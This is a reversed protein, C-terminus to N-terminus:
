AQTEVFLSKLAEIINYNADITKAKSSCELFDNRVKENDDVLVSLDSNPSIYNGKNESYPICHFSHFPFGNEKLWKIKARKVEQNYFQNCGNKPLATVVKITVDNEMLHQILETLVENKYIPEAERYPSPDYKRLKQLWNEVGYLNAITGDMDFLVEIKM